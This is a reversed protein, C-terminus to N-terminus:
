VSAPTALTTTTTVPPSETLSFYDRRPLPQGPQSLDGSGRLVGIPQGGQTFLVQGIGRIETLTLVIQGIVLAQDEQKITDYFNAPLDVTAVGSGDETVSPRGSRAPPVATRLGVGIDGSPPGEQLASLVEASSAGRRVLRPFPVLIGGANIFYLNVEETAVTTTTIEPLTTTTTTPEITTAPTTTTTTSTTPLTDDLAGVENEPIRAVEGSSPIGCAVVIAVLVVIILTLRRTM